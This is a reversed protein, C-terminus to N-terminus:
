RQRDVGPWGLMAGALADYVAPRARRIVETNSRTPHVRNTLLVGVLEADPDIWLSTGTFGLHGFTGPGFRSGSAPAEGSRRDFGALLSGGPRVRLMPELDASELFAPGRGALADLVAVGLLAVSRADGFLGAHGASADRALAWANEDHVAGRVAGGRWGVVESPAVRADFDAHQERLRRASGIRLGLPEVVEREVVRDLDGGGRAAIAAGLLLYGLDSYIPPFGQPPPDGACGERRADAITRLAEAPDVAGGEVLPAFLPLHAELGSRHAALLDIAVRASRTASLASLVGALPEDRGIRGARALRGLALATLPKTLSALDFLTDPTAEPAAEDFWLRGAAGLGFRWAGDRRVAAAVAACPAARHEHVAIAAAPSLDVFAHDQPSM